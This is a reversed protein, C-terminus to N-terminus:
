AAEEVGFEQKVRAEAEARAKEMAGNFAAREAKLDEVRRVTWGDRTNIPVVPDEHYGYLREHDPKVSDLLTTHESLEIRIGREGAIGLLWEVNGRGSEAVERNPYTFDCGYLAIRKVRLFIAFAVAWAVSTNIYPWGIDNIIAEVPLVVSGPIKPDPLMTYVPGPHHQIWELMGTAVKRGEEERQKVLWEYSDTAFLRDHHLIGGMANITWVEDAVASRGGHRAAIQFYDLSSVGMAVIAVSDPLNPDRPGVAEDVADRGRVRDGDPLLYYGNGMDRVGPPLRWESM